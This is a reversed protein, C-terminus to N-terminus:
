FAGPRASVFRFPAALLRDPYHLLVRAEWTMRDRVCVPLMGQGTWAGTEADFSLAARNFGMAMDVGAFDVEVRQPSPMEKLGVRLELPHVAPIGRPQIDLTVEAGASFRVSCAQSLLDCDPSLAARESIDLHLLPWAKVLVVAVIAVGLAAAVGWLLAPKGVGSLGRRGASADSESSM